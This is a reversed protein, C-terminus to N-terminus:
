RLFDQMKKISKARIFNIRRRRADASEKIKLPLLELMVSFMFETFFTVALEIQPMVALESKAIPHGLESCKNKYVSLLFKINEPRGNSFANSAIIADYLRPGRSVLDWDIIGSIKKNDTLLNGPRFDGHLQVELSESRILNINDVLVNLNLQLANTPIFRLFVEELFEKIQIGDYSFRVPLESLQNTTKPFLEQAASHYEALVSMAEISLSPIFEHQVCSGLESSVTVLGGLTNAVIENQTGTPLYREVPINKRGLEVVLRLNHQLADYDNTFHSKLIFGQNKASIRFTKGLIGGGLLDISTIGDIDFHQTAINAYKNLLTRNM